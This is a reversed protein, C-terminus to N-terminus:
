PSALADVHYSSSFQIGAKAPIVIRLPFSPGLFPNGGAGLAGRLLAGRIPSVYEPAHSYLARPPPIVIRLPFSPHARM